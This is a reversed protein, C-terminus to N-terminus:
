SNLLRGKTVMNLKFRNIWQLEMKKRQLDTAESPMTQLPAAFLRSHGSEAFHARVATWKKHLTEREAPKGTTARHKEGDGQQPAHRNCRDKLQGKTEGVYLQGCDRCGALYVLNETECNSTPIKTWPTRFEQPFSLHTTNAGIRKCFLCGCTKLGKYDKTARDTEEGKPKRNIILRHLNKQNRFVLKCDFSRLVRGGPVKELAAKEKKFVNFNKKFNLRRDYPVICRVENGFKEKPKKEEQKEELLQERSRVFARAFGDVIWKEEHGRSLLVWAEEVLNKFFWTDESALRRMRLGVGRAVGSKVFDPHDSESNLLTRKDTPKSYRNTRIGNEDDVTILVDLVPLEKVPGTDTFKFGSNMNDLEERFETVKARAVEVTDEALWSAGDDQYRVYNDMLEQLHPKKQKIRQALKEEEQALALCAIPGGIASGIPLGTKQRYFKGNYSFFANELNVQLCEKLAEGQGPALPMKELAKDFASCALDHPVSPYFAVVDFSVAYVKKWPTKSALYRNNM